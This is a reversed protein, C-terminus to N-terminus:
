QKSKEEWYNYWKRFPKHATKDHYPRVREASSCSEKCCGKLEELCTPCSLFLHNCDMNACNYYAEIPTSCKHCKGIVPADEECLPITMRDDFVFLKGLWHDKGQEHGYNIVGGNLQYVKEFGGEKLISSFIECRIGGTCYMMVPTKQPDVKEKLEEAYKKFDRSTACPPCEAGSFHGVEWEYDNRIDLLMHDKGTDLMEKWEKPSLHEGANELDTDTDFAVLQKRYKVIKKPFVHEHYPDLKFHTTDFGPLEKKLWEIYDHADQKAASMQCNIGEESIYVRSTIDRTAFFAKHRKVELHPNEIPSFHYYAIIIYPIEM